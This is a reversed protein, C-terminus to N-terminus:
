CAICSPSILHLIDSPGVSNELIHPGAAADRLLEPPVQRRLRAMREAHNSPMPLAPMSQGRGQQQQEHQQQPHERESPQGESARSANSAGLAESIRQARSVRQDRMANAREAFLRALEEPSQETSAAVSPMSSLRHSPPSRTRRSSGDASTGAVASPQTSPVFITGGRPRPYVRSRSRPKREEADELFLPRGM